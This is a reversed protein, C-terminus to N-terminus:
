EYNKREGQIREYYRKIFHRSWYSKWEASYFKMFAREIQEWSYGKELASFIESLNKEVLYFLEPERVKLNKRPTEKLLLDTFMKNEGKLQMAIIAVQIKCYIIKNQLAVIAILPSSNQTAVKRGVAQHAENLIVLSQQMSFRIM